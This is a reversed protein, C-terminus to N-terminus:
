CKFGGMSSLVQEADTIIENVIDAAPQIQNVMAAIQGALLSGNEVDGDLSAAPYKGTGLQELEQPTAGGREQELYYSAFKNNIVRV